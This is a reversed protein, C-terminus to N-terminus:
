RSWLLSKSLFGRAGLTYRDYRHLSKIVKSGVSKCVGWPFGETASSKLLVNINYTFTCINRLVIKLVATITFCCLYSKVSCYLQLLVLKKHRFFWAVCQQLLHRMGLRGHWFFSNLILGAFLPSAPSSPFSLNPYPNNNEKGDAGQECRTGMDDQDCEMSSESYQM